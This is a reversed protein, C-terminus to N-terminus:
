LRTWLGFLLFVGFILEAWPMTLALWKASAGTLIKYSYIVALFNQYPEVLKMFGSAIFVAAVAVRLTFFIKPKM